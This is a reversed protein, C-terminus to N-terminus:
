SGYERGEGLFNVEHRGPTSSAQRFFFFSPVKPTGAERRSSDAFQTAPMGGQLIGNKPAVQELRRDGESSSRVEALRLSSLGSTLIVKSVAGNVAWLTAATMVMAYGLWPRREPREDVPVFVPEAM